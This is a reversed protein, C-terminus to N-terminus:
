FIEQLILVNIMHKPIETLEIKLSGNDIELEKVLSVPEVLVKSDKNYNINELQIMINDPKIVQVDIIKFNGFLSGMFIDGGDANAIGKLTPIHHRLGNLIHIKIKSLAM